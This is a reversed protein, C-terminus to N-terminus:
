RVNATPKRCCVILFQGPQGAVLNMADDALVPGQWGDEKMHYTNQGAWEILELGRSPGMALTEQLTYHKYHFHNGTKGHPLLEECPTSYILLGGPKVSDVLTSFFGAGDSVHEISELSVVFDFTARPLDFPYYGVSFFSRPGRFHTEALRIADVSGDVGLMSRSQGLLWTGYGNGCFVDLGYGGAPIRADAWEYRFRHDARISDYETAVQREGSNLSLDHAM